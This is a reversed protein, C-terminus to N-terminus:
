EVVKISARAAAIEDERIMTGLDGCLTKGLDLDFVEHGQACLASILLSYLMDGQEGRSFNAIAVNDHQVTHGGFMKRTTFKM